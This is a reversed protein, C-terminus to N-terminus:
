RRLEVFDFRDNVRCTRTDTMKTGDAALTNYTFNVEYAFKEHLLSVKEVPGSFSTSTVKYVKPKVGAIERAANQAVTTVQAVCADKVKSETAADIRKFIEAAESANASAVEREKNATNNSVIVLVIMLVVFVGFIMLCGSFPSKKKAPLDKGAEGGIQSM